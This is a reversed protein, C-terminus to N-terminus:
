KLLHCALETLPFPAPLPPVRSTYNWHASDYIAWSSALRLLSSYKRLKRASGASCLKALCLALSNELLLLLLKETQWSLCSVLMLTNHLRILASLPVTVPPALAVPPPSYHFTVPQYAALWTRVSVRVRLLFRFQIRVALRSKQASVCLTHWVALSFCVPSSFQMFKQLVWCSISSRIKALQWKGRGAAYAAWNTKFEERERPM